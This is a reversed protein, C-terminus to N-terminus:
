DVERTLAQRRLVSREISRKLDDLSMGERRLQEQLVQDTDFHNEKKIGDIVEQIYDPKVRVGLDYGRQAVLLEDISDQLIKANNARLYAEIEAPPVRASQVAAVQRSEFESLTIIEGNVKAVVREIVEARASLGLALLSPIAALLKQPKM